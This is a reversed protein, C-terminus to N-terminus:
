DIELHSSLYPLGATSSLGIKAIMTVTDGTPDLPAGLGTFQIGLETLVAALDSLFTDGLIPREPASLLSDLLQVKTLPALTITMNGALPVTPIETGTPATVGGNGQSLDIEINGTDTVGISLGRTRRRWKFKVPDTFQPRKNTAPHPLQGLIVPKDMDNGMFGIVVQDGDM